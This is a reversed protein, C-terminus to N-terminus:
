SRLRQVLEEGSALLDLEAPGLLECLRGRGRQGLGSQM